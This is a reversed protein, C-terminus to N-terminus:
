KKYKNLENLHQRSLKEERLLANKRFDEFEAKLETLDQKTQTTTYNNRRFLFIVIALVSILGLVITWMLSNYAAKSLLIGLFSISNKERYTASYKESTKALETKLSDILSDKNAIITLNNSIKKYLLKITDNVHAKMVYLLGEKVVKFEEYRSSSNILFNFQNDITGKDISQKPDVQATTSNVQFLFALCFTLILQQLNINKM